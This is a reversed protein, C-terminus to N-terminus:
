EFSNRYDRPSSGTWQKFVRSFASAETYGLIRAIEEISTPTETILHISKDRLYQAKISKFQTNETTLNRRLTRVSCNMKQAVVEMNSCPLSSIHRLCQQSISEDFELRKFWYEPLQGIYAALEETSRQCSYDLCHLPFVLMAKDTNFKVKTSFMLDYENEHNTREYPLGVALLPIRKNALWSPFRHWILLVLETLIPEHKTDGHKITFYVHVQNEVIKLNISLSPTM